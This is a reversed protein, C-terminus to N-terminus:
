GLGLGPPLPAEAMRSALEYLSRVIVIQLFQIALMVVLPSFDIGGAAVFPLRRRVQWLVPETVARLFRVIVNSPDPNVWSLIVAALLIWFYLSLLTNLIAALAIVLNQLVFM